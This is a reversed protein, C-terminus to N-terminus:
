RLLVPTSSQAITIINWHKLVKRNEYYTWEIRMLYNNIITSLTYTDVNINRKKMVEIVYKM